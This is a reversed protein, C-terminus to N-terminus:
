LLIKSYEVMPINIKNYENKVFDQDKKIQKDSNVTKYIEQVTKYIGTKNYYEESILICTKNHIKQSKAFDFQSLYDKVKKSWYGSKEIINKLEKINKQMIFDEMM